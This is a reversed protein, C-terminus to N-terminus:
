LPRVMWKAQKNGFVKMVHPRNDGERQDGGRHQLADEIVAAGIQHVIGAVAHDGVQAVLQVGRRQPARDREELLMGRARQQRRDDVVDLLHLERHGAHQSFKELLEKGEDESRQHNDHQASAQGPHQDDEHRDNNHRRPADALTHAGGRALALVFSASMWFMRCSVMVPTRM